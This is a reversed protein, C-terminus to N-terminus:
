KANELGSILQEINTRAIKNQYAFQFASLMSVGDLKVDYIKWLGDKQNIYYDTTSPKPSDIALTVM